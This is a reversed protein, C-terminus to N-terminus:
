VYQKQKKRDKIFLIIGGIILLIGIGIVFTSLTHFISAPNFTNNSIPIGNVEDPINPMPFMANFIFRIIIGVGTFSTGSIFLSIYIKRWHRKVGRYIEGVVEDVNNIEHDPTNKFFYDYDTQLASVLKKYIM